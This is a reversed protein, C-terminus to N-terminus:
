LHPVREIKGDLRSCLGVFNWNRPGELSCYTRRHGKKRCEKLIKRERSNPSREASDVFSLSPKLGAKQNSIESSSNCCDYSIPIKLSPCFCLSQWKFLKKKVHVEGINNNNSNKNGEYWQNVYSHAREEIGVVRSNSVYIGHLHCVCQLSYM